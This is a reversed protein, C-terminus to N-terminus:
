RARQCMPMSNAGCPSNESGHASDRPPTGPPAVLKAQLFGDPLEGSPSDPPTIPTPISSRRGSPLPYSTPHVPAPFRDNRRTSSSLDEDCHEAMPYRWVGTIPGPERRARRLRKTSEQHPQLINGATRLDERSQDINGGTDTRM